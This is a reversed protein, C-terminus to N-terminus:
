AAEKEVPRARMGAELARWYAAGPDAIEGTACFDELVAAGDAIRRSQIADKLAAISDSPKANVFYSPNISTPPLLLGYYDLGRGLAEQMAGTMVPGIVLDAWDYLPELGGSRIIECELGFLEAIREYYTTNWIGPHLKLKIEDIGIGRLMRVTGVFSGFQRDNLGRIDVITPTYQLIVAKRYADSKDRATEGARRPLPSGTRAVDTAGEINKFWRECVSGWSLHWDVRRETRPDGGLLDFKLDHTMPSHWTNFTVAGHNAGAELYVRAPPSFVSDTIVTAPKWRTVFRDISVIQGAVHAMRGSGIVADRVRVWVAKELGTASQWRSDLAAAIGELRKADEAELDGPPLAALMLGRHLYDLIRRPRKPLMRAPFLAAMSTSRAADIMPLATGTGLVILALPRRDIMRRFRSLVTWGAEYLRLAISRAEVSPAARYATALFPTTMEDDAPPDREDVFAAGVRNAAARAIDVRSELDLIGLETRYDRFVITKPRFRGALVGLARTLRVHDLIVLSADRAFQRGLSVGRYQTLDRGDPGFVWDNSRIHLDSAYGDGDWDLLGAEFFLCTHGERRLSQWLLWDCAILLTGAHPQEPAHRRHSVLVFCDVAAPMEALGQELTPCDLLAQDSM